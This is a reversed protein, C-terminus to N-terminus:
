ASRSSLLALARCLSWEACRSSLLALVRYLSWEADVARYLASNACKM